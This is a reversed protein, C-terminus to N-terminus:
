EDDNAAEVFEFGPEVDGEPPTDLWKTVAMLWSATMGRSVDRSEGNEVNHGLVLGRGAFVRGGIAFYGRPNPYSLLGEDDVYLDNLADLRVVDFLSCGLAPAIDRWGEIDCETITRAVPDILLAKM